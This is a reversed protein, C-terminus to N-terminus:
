YKKLLITVETRLRDAEDRDALDYQGRIKGRRDVLVADLPERMLFRCAYADFFREDGAGISVFGVPDNALETKLQGLETTARSSHTSDKLFRILVLSDHEPLLEKVIDANVRYPLTVDGCGKVVEPKEKQFLPEVAFENKGFMKLFVFIVGPLLLAVFLFVGKKGM